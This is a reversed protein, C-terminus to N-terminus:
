WRVQGTRHGKRQNIAISPVKWGLCWDEQTHWSWGKYSSYKQINKSRHVVLIETAGSESSREGSTLVLKSNTSHSVLVEPELINACLIRMIRTVTGLLIKYGKGVISRMILRWTKSFKSQRHSHAAGNNRYQEVTFVNCYILPLFITWLGCDQPALSWIYTCYLYTWYITVAIIFSRPDQIGGARRIAVFQISHASCLELASSDLGSSLSSIVELTSAFSAGASNLLQNAASHGGSSISLRQAEQDSCLQNTVTLPNM